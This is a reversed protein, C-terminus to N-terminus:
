RVTVTGTMTTPHLVCFLRYTGVKRFRHRYSRGDSLNKSAFARPGNAVTVNHLTGAPFAWVLRAGRRVRLNAPFFQFDRVLVTTDSPVDVVPGAARRVVRARGNPGIGTLPVRVRPASTRHPATTQFVRVDRPLAPCGAPVPGPALYAIGLGMVRAHPLEADYESTLRLRQGRAVPFGRASNVGSMAIPGPEHLVPRVRYYPHDPLGWAPRLRALTRDWCDPQSVVLQKAGGHVHGGIGVIRGSEPM